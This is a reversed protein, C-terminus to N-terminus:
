SGSLVGAAVRGVREPEVIVAIEVIRGGTVTFAMLAYPRGHLTIVVGAAGNILAPQLVAAPNAGLSAQRAV